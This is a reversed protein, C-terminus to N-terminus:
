VRVAPRCGQRAAIYEDGRGVVSRYAAVTGPNSCVRREGLTHDQTVLSRAMREETTEKFRTSILYM